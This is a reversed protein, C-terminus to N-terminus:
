YQKLFRKELYAIIDSSEYMWQDKGGESLKLCPVQLEGGKELLEQRFQANNQADRLEINLNMRKLARRVKICFPCSQFQYIAMTQTEANISAQKEASRQLVQPYPKPAFVKDLFTILVGIFKRIFKLM